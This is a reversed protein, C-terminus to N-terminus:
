SGEFLSTEDLLADLFRQVTRIDSLLIREIEQRDLRGFVKPEYRTRTGHRAIHLRNRHFYFMLDGPLDYNLRLIAQELAPTLFSEAEKKGVAYVKFFRGLAESETYTRNLDPHEGRPKQANLFSKEKVQLSERFSKDFTFVMWGGDFYTVRFDKGNKKVRSRLAVDSMVCDIGRYRGTRFESARYENGMMIMDTDEILSRAIGDDPKYTVNEFEAELIERQMNRAYLRMYRSIRLRIVPLMVLFLAFLIAALTIRIGQSLPVLLAVLGLTFLILAAFSCVLIEKRLKELAAFLDM